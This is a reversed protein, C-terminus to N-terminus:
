RGAMASGHRFAEEQDAAETPGSRCYLGATFFLTGLIFSVICNVMSFGLFNLDTQMLIMMAMGSVMFVAGALLNLYYDLNRGVVNGLLLVLGVAISLVAFALNTRLGLVWPLKHDHPQAFAPLGRSAGVGLLGFVLVYLGGLGALARYLTRLHHNIPIHLM